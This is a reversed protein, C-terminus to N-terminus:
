FKEPDIYTEIVRDRSDKLSLDAGHGLLVKFIALENASLNTGSKKALEYLPIYYALFLPNKDHYSQNPDLVGGKIAKVLLKEAEAMHNNWHRLDWLLAMGDTSSFASQSRIRDEVEKDTTTIDRPIPTEKKQSFLKALFSRM